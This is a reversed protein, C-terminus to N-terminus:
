WRSVIVVPKIWGYMRLWWLRLKMREEHGSGLDAMTEVHEDSLWTRRNLAMQEAAQAIQSYVYNYGPWGADGCPGSKRAQEVLSDTILTNM